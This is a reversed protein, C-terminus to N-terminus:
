EGKVEMIAMLVDHAKDCLDCTRDTGCMYCPNNLHIEAAVRATNARAYWRVVEVFDADPQLPEIKMTAGLTRGKHGKGPNPKVLGPPTKLHGPPIKAHVPPIRWMGKVFLHGCGAQHRHGVSKYWLGDVQYHACTPICLHGAGVFVRTVPSRLPPHLICGSLGLLAAGVLATILKMVFDGRLFGTGTYGRPTHSLVTM